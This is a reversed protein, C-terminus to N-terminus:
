GDPSGVGLGSSRANVLLSFSHPSSSPMVRRSWTTIPSFPYWLKASKPCSCPSTKDHAGFLKASPHVISINLSGTSVMHKFIPKHKSDMGCIWFEERDAQELFKFQAYLDASQSIRPGEYVYLTEKILQVRVTPITSQLNSM